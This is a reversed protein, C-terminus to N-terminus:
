TKNRFWFCGCGYGQKDSMEISANRILGGDKPDDPILAFEILELGSFYEMVQVCTYIRHANFMIKPTGGVPVVFLLTGGPALVRKLESIAKLDGNADLQDGYRGLGMHEVVHMCSLSNISGDDFPLSILDVTGCELGALYLDVPRYDYFRVPIFASLMSSFHLSSSIDVHYEPKTQKIIRSAWAPHYVYHRDFGTKQTKDGLCPYRDDWRLCFRDTAGPLKGFSEFERKFVMYASFYALLSSGAAIFRYLQKALFTKKLIHKLSVGCM